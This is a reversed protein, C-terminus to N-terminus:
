GSIQGTFVSLAELVEAIDAPATAESSGKMSGSDSTETGKRRNGIGEVWM